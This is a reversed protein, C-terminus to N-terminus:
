ICTVQYNSNIGKNSCIINTLINRDRIVYSLCLVFIMSNIIHVYSMINVNKCINIYSTAYLTHWNHHILMGETVVHLTCSVYEGVIEATCTSRNAKRGSSAFIHSFMLELFAM